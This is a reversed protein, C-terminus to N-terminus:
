MEVYYKLIRGLDCLKRDCSSSGEEWGRCVNPAAEAKVGPPQDVHVLVNLMVICGVEEEGERHGVEDVVFIVSAFVVEFAGVDYKWVNKPVGLLVEHVIELDLLMVM